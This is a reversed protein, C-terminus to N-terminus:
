AAGSAVQAQVGGLRRVTEVTSLSGVPDLLQREMRWGLAKAWSVRM